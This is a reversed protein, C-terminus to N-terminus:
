QKRGWVFASATRAAFPQQPAREVFFAAYEEAASASIRETLLEMITPRNAAGRQSLRERAQDATLEYRQWYMLFNLGVQAFGAEELMRVLDREDFTLMPEHPDAYITEFLERVQAGLTGLPRLDLMTHHPTLYRNLAEFLSIRGGPRLVRYAEGFAAPRDEVFELVSRTTAVDVSAAALPLATVSAQFARVRDAIGTRDAEARLTALCEADLDCAFVHGAAGVRNAAELAILGRGAGLDLLTDGPRIAAHSLLFDRTRTLQSGLREAQAALWENWRPSDM